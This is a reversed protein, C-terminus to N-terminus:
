HVRSTARYKQTYIEVLNQQCSTLASTMEAPLGERLTALLEVAAKRVAIDQSSAAQQPYATLRRHSFSTPPFVMLLPGSLQPVYKQTQEKPLVSAIHSVLHLLDAVSLGEAAPLWSLTLQLALEFTCDDLAAKL